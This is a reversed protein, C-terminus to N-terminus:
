HTSRVFCYLLFTLSEGVRSVQDAVADLEACLHSWAHMDRGRFFCLVPRKRDLVVADADIRLVRGADEHDELTQMTVRFVRPAPDAQRDTLLDDLIMITPNPEFGLGALPGGKVKRDGM